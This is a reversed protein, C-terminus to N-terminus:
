AEQYHTGHISSLSQNLSESSLTRPKYANYRPVVLVLWSLVITVAPTQNEADCFKIIPEIGIAQLIAVEM